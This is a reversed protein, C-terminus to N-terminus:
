TQSFLIIFCLQWVSTLKSPVTTLFPLHILLLQNKDHFFASEYKFLANKHWFPSKKTWFIVPRWNCWRGEPDSLRKMLISWGRIQYFFLRTLNTVRNKLIKLATPLPFSPWRGGTWRLTKQWHARKKLLEKFTGKKYIFTLVICSDTLIFLVM